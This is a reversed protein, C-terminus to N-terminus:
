FANSPPHEVPADGELRAWGIKIRLVIFQKPQLDNSPTGDPGINVAGTVGTVEVTVRRVRQPQADRPFQHKAIEACCSVPEDLSERIEHLETGYAEEEESSLTADPDGQARRLAVDHWHMFMGTAEVDKQQLMFTGSPYVFPKGPEEQWFSEYQALYEAETRPMSTRDLEADAFEENERFKHLVEQELFKRMERYVPDVPPYM